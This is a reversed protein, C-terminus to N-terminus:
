VFLFPHVNKRFDNSMTGQLPTENKTQFCVDYCGRFYRGYCPKLTADNADLIIGIAVIIVPMGWAYLAYFPLREHIDYVYLSFGKHFTKWLDYAMVNMWFFSALYFYHIGLAYLLCVNSSTVITLDQSLFLSEALILTIILNITNCGPLNRLSSFLMFTILTICLAMISLFTAITSLIGPAKELFGLKKSTTENYVDHKCVVIYLDPRFDDYRYERNTYLRGTRKLRISFNKYQVVECLGIRMVVSDPCRGIIRPQRNCVSVLKM